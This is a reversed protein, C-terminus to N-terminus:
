DEPLGAPVFAAESWSEVILRVDRHEPPTWVAQQVVWGDRDGDYFVRIPSAARVHSLYLKVGGSENLPPYALNIYDGAKVEIM